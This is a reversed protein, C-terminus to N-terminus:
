LNLVGSNILLNGTKAILFAVTKKFWRKRCYFGTDAAPNRFLQDVCREEVVTNCDFLNCGKQSPIMDSESRQVGFKFEILRM